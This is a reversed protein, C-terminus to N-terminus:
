PSAVYEAMRCNRAEVFRIANQRYAQYMAVTSPLPSTGFDAFPMFFKVTSSDESVLDQLLFFDTYGNFDEFLTFFDRYRILVEALPSTEGLYHLRICELTLDFRDAIPGNNRGREQNITPMGGGRVPFLMKGGIQHAITLFQERDSEPVQETIRRMRQWGTWTQCASDSTLYFEGRASLHHLYADPTTDDLDFPDGSPLPKSWLLKHYGKLTPSTSDPDRGSADTRFDFTLDFGDEYGM